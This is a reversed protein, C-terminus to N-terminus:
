VNYRATYIRELFMKNQFSVIVRSKFPWPLLMLFNRRTVDCWLWSLEQNCKPLTRECPRGLLATKYQVYQSDVRIMQLIFAGLMINFTLTKKFLVEGISYWQHLDDYWKKDTQKRKDHPRTDADTNRKTESLSNSSVALICKPRMKGSKQPKKQGTLMIIAINTIVTYIIPLCSFM